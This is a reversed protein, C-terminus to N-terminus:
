LYLRPVTSFRRVVLTQKVVGVSEMCRESRIIELIVWFRM